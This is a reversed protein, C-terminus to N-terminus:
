DISNNNVDTNNITIIFFTGAVRMLFIIIIHTIPVLLLLWLYAVYLWALRTIDETTLM